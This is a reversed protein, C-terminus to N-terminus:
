LVNWWSLKHAEAVARLLSALQKCCAAFHVQEEERAFVEMEAFLTDIEDMPTHDAAAAVAKWQKRWRDKAQRALQVGSQFDETQAAQELLEATPLQKKEMVWGTLLGLFLIALLLGVGIYFRREM